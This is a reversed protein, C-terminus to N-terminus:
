FESQSKRLLKRRVKSMRTRIWRRIRYSAPPTFAREFRWSVSEHHGDAGEWHITEEGMRRYGMKERWAASRPNEKAAHAAIHYMGRSRAVRENHSVLFSGIGRSQCEPSVTSAFSYANPPDGKFNYLLCSRGMAVGDVEAVAVYMEGREQSNLWTEGLPLDASFLRPLDDARLKRIVLGDPIDARGLLRRLFRSAPRLLNM